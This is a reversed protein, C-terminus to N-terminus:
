RIFASTETWGCASNSAQSASSSARWCYRRRRVARRRPPPFCSADAIAASVYAPKQFRNAAAIMSPITVPIPPRTTAPGIMASIIREAVLARPSGSTSASPTASSPTAM